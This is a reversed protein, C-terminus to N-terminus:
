FQPSGSSAMVGGPIHGSAHKNHRQHLRVNRTDHTMVAMIDEINVPIILDVQSGAINGTGIIQAAFQYSGTLVARQAIDM